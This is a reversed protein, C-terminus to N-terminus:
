KKTAIHSIEHIAVFTLTNLDILDEMENTETKSREKNLCFALKEGKNQSYATYKSTPLIEVFTKPNYGKVLRKVREDEPHKENAYKVLKTMNQSITALRDAALKLKKRERVCYKNGDVDSIICKLNFYDSESYMKYSIFLIMLILAYGLLDIKM